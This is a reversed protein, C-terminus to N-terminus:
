KTPLTIYEYSGNYTNLYTIDGSTSYNFDSVTTQTYTPRTNIDKLYVGEKTGNEDYGAKKFSDLTTTDTQVTEIVEGNSIFAQYIYEGGQKAYMESMHITIPAPAPEYTVPDYYSSKTSFYTPIVIGYMESASTPLESWTDGDLSYYAQATTTTSVIKLWCKSGAIISGGYFSIYGSNLSGYFEWNGNYYQAMVSVSYYDDSIIPVSVGYGGLNELGTDITFACVFEAEDDYNKLSYSHETYNSEDPHQLDSVKVFTPTGVNTVNLTGNYVVSTIHFPVYVNKTLSTGYFCSRADGVSKSNIIIDGSLNVCNRFTEYMNSVSSGIDPISTLSPCESFTRCLSEVTDPIRDISTLNSCYHFTQEMSGIKQPLNTATTINSCMMFTSNLDVRTTIHSLDPIYALNSCGTFTGELPSVYSVDSIQHIIPPNVLYKCGAFAHHFNNVTSPINGFHTVNVCDRFSNEISTIGEPIDPLSTLNSCNKFIASVSTVYPPIEPAVELDTCGDFMGSLNTINQYEFLNIGGKYKTGSFYQDMVTVNKPPEPVNVLKSCGKFAWGVNTVSNPITPPVTLNSCGHFSQYLIEVSDPIHVVGDINSCGSFTRNMSVLNSCGTLDPFETLNRCSVFTDNLFLLHKSGTLDPAKKLNNCGYFASRMSCANNWVLNGVSSLNSCSNFMYDAIKVNNGVANTEALYRCGEFMYAGCDVSERTEEDAYVYTMNTSNNFLKTAILHTPKSNISNPITITSMNKYNNLWSIAVNTPNEYYLWDGSMNYGPYEKLTINSYSKVNNYISKYTPCNFFPIYVNLKNKPNNVFPYGADAKTANIYINGQINPLGQSIYCNFVHPPIEPITKLNPLNYTPLGANYMYPSYNSITTLNPASSNRNGGYPYRMNTTLTNMNTVSTLNNFTGELVTYMDDNVFRIQNLDITKINPNSNPFLCGESSFWGSEAQIRRANGVVEGNVIIKVM